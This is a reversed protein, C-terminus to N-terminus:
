NLQKLLLLVIQKGWAPDISSAPKFNEYKNLAEQFLKKAEAKSGGFQEPTDMKDQGQLLYIRPNKPNLKKAKALAEEALPGYQMYRNMPDARLRLSAIM